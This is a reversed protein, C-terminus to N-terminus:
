ELLYVIIGLTMFLSTTKQSKRKQARLNLVQIDKMLLLWGYKGAIAEEVQAAKNGLSMKTHHSHTM